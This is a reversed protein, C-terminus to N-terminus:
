EIFKIISSALNLLRIAAWLRMMQHASSFKKVLPFHIVAIEEEATCYRLCLQTDTAFVVPEPSTSPQPWSDLLVVTAASMPFGLLFYPFFLTRSRRTTTLRKQDRCAAEASNQRDRRASTPWFRVVLETRTEGLKGGGCTCAPESRQRKSVGPIDLRSFAVGGIRM